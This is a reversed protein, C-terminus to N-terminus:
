SFSSTSSVLIVAARPRLNTIADENFQTANTEFSVFMNTFSSVTQADTSPKPIFVLSACIIIDAHGVLHERTIIETKSDKSKIIM